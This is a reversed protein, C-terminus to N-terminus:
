DHRGGGRQTERGSDIGGGGESIISSLTQGLSQGLQEASFTTPLSIDARLRSREATTIAQVPIHQESLAQQLADALAFRDVHEMGHLVIREINLFIDGSM